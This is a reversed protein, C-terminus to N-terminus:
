KNAAYIKKCGAVCEDIDTDELQDFLSGKKGDADPIVVQPDVSWAKLTAEALGAALLRKGFPDDSFKVGLWNTREAFGEFPSASAHVGNNGTNPASDLGLAKWDAMIIGRLSDAPADAPDTPGLVAGRFDAWKLTAPNFQVTFYHISTGPTTFAGRMSMFFANFTYLPKGASDDMIHGCYFGGGFKELKKASKCEAWAKDMAVGDGNYHKACMDLANLTRGEAKVQAWDEGFKAKFKDEPVNLADPKLITAKSAIAYYHQDIYQKEDITEGTIEGEGTIEIGREAFKKKIVELVPGKNAHPKAFVFASNRRALLHARHRAHARSRAPRARSRSRAGPRARARGFMTVFHITHQDDVHGKTPM